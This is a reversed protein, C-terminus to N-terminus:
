QPAPGAQPPPPPGGRRPGGPRATLARLTDPTMMFSLQVSTGTGGLELTKLATQLDPNSGASLAALSLAGRVVDRLQTAATENEALAKITAKVGGDLRASASVLRLPPVQTRVAPPLGIRRSVADFRGVVWANATAEDRMLAMLDANVTVNPTTTSGDLAQRVLDTMGVAILDPQVFGIAMEPAPRRMQQIEPVSNNDPFSPRDFPPPEEQRVVMHKGHYDQIVGGHDKMFQEVRPQDFTGQALLLLRPPQNNNGDAPPNADAQMFAVIHNVDKELDIGAFEHMQEQGRRGTTMRELERRMESAMVSKVDAYAVMQADVPVYRLEAPLGAPIGAARHYMLYAFTGGGLGVLLVVASGVLFYRSKKTM